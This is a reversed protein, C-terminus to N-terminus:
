KRVFSYISGALMGIFIFPIYPIKCKGADRKLLLIMGSFIFTIVGLTIIGILYEAVSLMMGMALLAMGDGTGCVEKNICGILLLIIGPLILILEMEPFIKGNYLDVIKCVIAFFIVSYMGFKSVQRTRIDEISLKFMLLLIALIVIKKIM